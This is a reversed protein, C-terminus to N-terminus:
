RKKKELYRVLLVFGAFLALAVVWMVMASFVGGLSACIGGILYTVFAIAAVVFVGLFLSVYVQKTVLALVIAIVAPM